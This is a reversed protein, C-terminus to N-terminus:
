GMQATGANTGGTITESVPLDFAYHGLVMAALLAGEASDMTFNNGAFYVHTSSAPHM